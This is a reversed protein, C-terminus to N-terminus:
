SQAQPGLLSSSGVFAVVTGVLAWTIKRRAFIVTAILRLGVLIATIGCFISSIAIVALTRNGPTDTELAMSGRRSISSSSRQLLALMSYDSRERPLRGQQKFLDLSFSNDSVEITPLPVAFPDLKVDGSRESM